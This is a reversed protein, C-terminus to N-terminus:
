QWAHTLKCNGENRRWLCVSAMRWIANAPPPLANLIHFVLKERSDSHILNYAGKCHCTPTRGPFFGACHVPQFTRTVVCEGDCCVLRPRNGSFSLVDHAGLRPCFFSCSQLAFVAQSTGVLFTAFSLYQLQLPRLSARIRGATLFWRITTLSKFACM